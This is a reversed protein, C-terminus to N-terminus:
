KKATKTLEFTIESPSDPGVEITLPSNQPHSYIAPIIQEDDVKKVPQNIQGNPTSDSDGTNEQEDWVSQTIVVRFKGAMSGDGDGYTSMMFKGDSEITGGAAKGKQQDIPLFAISGGGAM